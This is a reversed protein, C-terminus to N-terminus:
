DQLERETNKEENNEEEKEPKKSFYEVIVDKIKNREFKIIADRINPDIDKPEFKVETTLYPGDDETSDAYEYVTDIKYTVKKVYESM